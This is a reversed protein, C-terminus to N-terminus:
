GLNVTVLITYLISKDTVFMFSYYFIYFYRYSKYTHSFNAINTNKMKLM